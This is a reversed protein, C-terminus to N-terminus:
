LLGAGRALLYVVAWLALSAPVSALVWPSAGTMGAPRSAQDRESIGAPGVSLNRMKDEEGSRVLQVSITKVPECNAVKNWLLILRAKTQVSSSHAWDVSRYRPSPPTHAACAIM